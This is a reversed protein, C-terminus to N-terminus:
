KRTDMRVTGASHESEATLHSRLRRLNGGSKQHTGHM